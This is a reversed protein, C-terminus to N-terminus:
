LYSIRMRLARSRISINQLRELVPITRDQALMILENRLTYFAQERMDPLVVPTPLVIPTERNCLLECVAECCLGLGTETHNEFENVYRPHDTCIRSIAQEGHNLIVDCLGKNNLFPCRKQPSLKIHWFNEEDKEIHSCLEPHKQYYLVTEEDLYIDWGICCSHKCDGAICTFADYFDPTYNKM